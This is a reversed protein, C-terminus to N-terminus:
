PWFDDAAIAFNLNAFVGRGAANTVGILNGRADFLGGGSSGPWIPASHQIMHLGNRDRLGSVLGQGLTQELGDPTGLSFATEGVHLDSFRRVGQIPHVIMDDSRLFCRDGPTDAYVLTAGGTHGKQTLTIRRHGVVVHCNTLLVRDSVAVASGYVDGAGGTAAVIYVSPAAADYLATASLVAGDGPPPMAPRDRRWSELTATPMGGGPLQKVTLSKVTVTSGEAPFVSVPRDIGSYDGADEFRLQGDVSITQKDPLVTWTVTVYRGAPIAGAGAKHKGNAPGGDVRLQDRDLEWNFIVQDAAYSLRLNTSDTEAVITIEVPPRFRGPTSLRDGGSLVIGDTSEISDRAVHDAVAPPAAWALALATFLAIFLCLGRRPRM